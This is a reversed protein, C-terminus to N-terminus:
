RSDLTKRIFTICKNPHKKVEHEWFRLVKWGKTRLTQTVFIDRKKNSRIKKLWFSRNNVPISRCKTCGHWFCGDVFLAVKKREFLFDPKGIIDIPAVRWGHVSSQILRSRLPWETSRNGKGRIASMLKSRKSKTFVDAM